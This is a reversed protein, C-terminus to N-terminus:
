KPRKFRERFVYFPFQFLQFNSSSAFGDLSCCQQPRDSYQSSDQLDSSIKQWEFARSFDDAQVSSLLQRRWSM